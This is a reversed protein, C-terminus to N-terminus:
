SRNSLDGRDAAFHDATRLALAQLTFTPNVSGETPFLGSGAVYLNDFGYVRGFSDTVSTKADRGM